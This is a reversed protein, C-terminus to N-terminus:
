DEPKVTLRLGERGLVRLRAGRRVPTACHAQWIEGRLRVRGLGTFDEVAEAEAGLIEEGGALAPRRRAKVALSLIAGFFLASFATVALVVPLAVAFGPVDRDFLLLSGALFAAIGGIGAVGFSPMFAEAAMLAIGLALLGLGAYSVPLLQLAYAAMLLAIAGVVGPVLGGPHYFEFFLGYVGILMLLYAVTPDTLVMLMRTRWDPELVVLRAGATALVREGRATKLKRGQALRLLEERDRAMFEIVGAKLADEASLSSAERVAKEAFEANRGREQALSRLYAAADNVMKREMAPGSEASKDAKDKGKDKDAEPASPTPLGGIAVPTAAGLNTAPAMVALHSAYLIYTGASAARAGSPAVYAIVPVESALIAHIIDRMAKDLGGPTDMELILCEARAAQAQALGKQVHDAVAPGIAGDINLVYVDAADVRATSIGALFIALLTAWLRHAM